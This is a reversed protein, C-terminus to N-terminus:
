RSDEWSNTESSWLSRPYTRPREKAHAAVSKPLRLKVKNNDIGLSMKNFMDSSMKYGYGDPFKVRYGGDGYEYAIWSLPIVVVDEEEAKRPEVTFEPFVGTLNLTRSGYQFYFRKEGWSDRTEISGKHYLKYATNSGDYYLQQGFMHHSNYAFVTFLDNGEGKLTRVPKLKGLEALLVLRNYSWTEFNFTNADFNVIDSIDEGEGIQLYKYQNRIMYADIAQPVNKHREISKMIEPAQNELAEIITKNMLDEPLISAFKQVMDAIQTKTLNYKNVM